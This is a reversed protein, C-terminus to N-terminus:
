DVVGTLLHPGNEDSGKYDFDWSYRISYTRARVVDHCEADNLSNFRARRNLNSCGMKDLADIGAAKVTTCKKVRGDAGVFLTYSGVGDFIRHRMFPGDSSLDNATFWQAKSIRPVLDATQCWKQPEGCAASSTVLAVTILAFSRPLNSM